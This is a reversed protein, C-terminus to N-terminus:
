SSVQPELPASFPLSPGARASCSRRRRPTRTPSRRPGPPADVLRPSPPSPPRPGALLRRCRRLCLVCTPHGLLAVVVDTAVTDDNAYAGLADRARRRCVRVYCVCLCAYQLADLPMAKAFYFRDIHSLVQAIGDDLILDCDTPELELTAGLQPPLTDLDCVGDVALRTAANAPLGAAQAQLALEVQDVLAAVDLLSPDSPLNEIALRRALHGALSALGLKARSAPDRAKHAAHAAAAFADAVEEPSAAYRLAAAADRATKIALPIPGGLSVRPFLGSSVLELAADLAGPDRELEPWMDEAFDAQHPLKWDDRKKASDFRVDLGAARAVLALEATPSGDDPCRLSGKKVAAVAADRKAATVRVALFEDDVWEVRVAGVGDITYSTATKAAGLRTALAASDRIDCAPNRIQFVEGKGSGLALIDDDGWLGDVRGGLRRRARAARGDDERVMALLVTAATAPHTALLKQATAVPMGRLCRLDLGDADFLAARAVNAVATPKDPKAHLQWAFTVDPLWAKFPHRTTRVFGIDEVIRVEDEALALDDWLPEM